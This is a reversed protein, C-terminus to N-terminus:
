AATMIEGPQAIFDGNADKWVKLDTTDLRYYAVIAHGNPDFVLSAFQGVDGTSDITVIEGADFAFNGNADHWLKLDKTTNDYYACSVHRAPDFALSAYQGVDNTSDITRVEGADAVFNGNADYWLKLDGTDSRYYAVVLQGAVYTASADTGVTG